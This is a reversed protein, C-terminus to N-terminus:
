GNNDNQLQELLRQYFSTGAYNMLGSQLNQFANSQNTVAAGLQSEVQNMKTTWAGLKNWDQAKEQQAGMMEQAAALKEQNTSQWEAAKIGLDQIAQLEKDYIDGTLAGYSTSSIAGREAATRARASAQQINQEILGQGPLQTQGALKQYQALANKYGQSIEYTPRQANLANWQKQLKSRRISQAIGQGLNLLSSVGTAIAGWPTASKLIDSAGAM